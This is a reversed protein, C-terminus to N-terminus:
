VRGVLGFFVAVKDLSGRLVGMAKKIKRPHNYKIRACEDTCRTIAMELAVVNRMLYAEEKDLVQMIENYTKGAMAVRETINYGSFGGAGGGVVSHHSSATLPRRFNAIYYINHFRKGAEEQEPTIRKKRRYTHIPSTDRMKGFEVGEVNMISMGRRQLEPTGLDTVKKITDDM